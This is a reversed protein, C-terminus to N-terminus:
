FYLDLKPIYISKGIVRDEEIEQDDILWQGKINKLSYREVQVVEGIVVFLQVKVSM